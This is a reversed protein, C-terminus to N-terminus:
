INGYAKIAAQKDKFIERGMVVAYLKSHKLSEYRERDIGGDIWVDYKGHCALQCAYDLMQPQAIQLPDSHLTTNILVHKTKELLCSMEKRGVDLNSINIGTPIGAQMYADIVAIPDTLHDIQIFTIDAKCRKIEEIYHLPDLVELHISKESATSLDCILKCMKMGFTIENVAVGDAVDLHINNFYKDAFLVEEAIHMIDASAISPSIKM